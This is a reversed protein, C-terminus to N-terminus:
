HMKPGPDGGLTASMAQVAADGLVIGEGVVVADGLVIGDGLVLGDGLVIGDGLVQGSCFLTGDGLVIGASTWVSDGLVIGDGLVISDGLVIGDGLVTSDGLVIGDGLVLGQGYFTQYKTILSPGTAYQHKFFVGKSWSFTQGAITSQPTPPTSTSLMASDQPTTASLDTRVLKALRMAGEVNLEGTGQELMNFGALPQATYTLILKVMNPTLKPNAQLLLAATGAVLPTAMSTGSLFMLKRNNEDEIGSDLEPHLKVLLNPSADKKDKSDRPVDSEAYILKNGPAALDPKLLNDYHKVGGADTTFSRTPGRSSYTAIGDDSRVDTGFTNVAGVTIVSPDNGPSHIQGYLKSGNADKGNNGAAAVVVIGADVLARAARCVPDNRYSNIAPAGLSMNVVRIGYKDKNLPNSSSVARTPDTPTLIWNLANLLVSTSGSGQANLVRLNIISVGPAIGQYANGNETSTGALSSAVHTGHGYPDNTPNNETTFDRDLIVRSSISAHGNDVGSDLVAVGIGRGDFTTTTPLIGLIGGSSVTRILDTGTTSTVHGFSEIKVDPSIYNTLGSAALDEIAGVPVQVKMAGLQAMRESILVGHRKLLSKLKENNVDNVQLIADVRGNASASQMLERMDASIKDGEFAEATNATKQNDTDTTTAATDSTAGIVVSEFLPAINEDSAIYESYNEPSAAGILRLNSSELAARVAASAVYTARKGAFEQLEDIFLVIQGNSKETEAFIAQVRNEFEQSTKASDAIADLSLSFILKGRLVPPVNGSAVRLALGRAVATRDLNSEGVLVPTKTSHSLTDVVRAIEADYGAVAELKGLRALKTLDSAFRKLNPYANAIRKATTSKTVSSRSNVSARTQGSLLAGTSMAAILAVTILKRIAPPKINSKM